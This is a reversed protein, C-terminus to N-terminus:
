PVLQSTVEVYVKGIQDVFALLKGDPSFAVDSIAYEGPDTFTRVLAGTAADWIYAHDSTGWDGAVLFKGDPSFAMPMTGEGTSSITGALSETAISWLYISGHGGGAAALIKGDPSFALAGIGIKEVDPIGALPTAVQTGTAVDWLLVSNGSGLIAAAALLTSDPNFALANILTGPTSLNFILTDTALSWLCVHGGVAVALVKGNPSFALRDVGLPQSPNILTTILQGTAVDWLDVGLSTAGASSALLTGDPSFAPIVSTQDPTTLAHALTGTALDWIYARGDPGTDALLRGDASFAIDNLGVNDPDTLTLDRVTTTGGAGSQSTGQHPNSKGRATTPSAASSTAGPRHGAAAKPTSGPILSFVLVVAVVVAGAAAAAILGAKRRSRRAHGAGSRAARSSATRSPAAGAPPVTDRPAFAERVPGTAAPAPNHTSEGYGAAAPAVGFPARYAAPALSGFAAPALGPRRLASLIARVPPRDGPDKALCAAIVERLGGDSVGALDPPQNVVRFMISVASDTGFPPRGTAAFGLVSGLSFVDSAPGAVEGRIQEPSMYAVTGVVAGTMTIGTSSDMVRAIGFDIIRPGDAALIVNGPKLDRHVLGCAHIAGLGEALGAGLVRVQDAPLPGARRVADQLSPGEIYATVMWPPDARPDADVVLATHFGGVRQAAQIERAFRERFQADRAHVSHILKVAVKRGGPSVGLYVQGMGGAGLRGLLQYGGVSGPDGRELADM